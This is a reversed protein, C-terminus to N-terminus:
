SAGLLQDLSDKCIILKRSGGNLLGKQRFHKITQCVTAVSTNAFSAIIRYTLVAPLLVDGNTLKSGCEKAFYVLINKIREAIKGELCLQQLAKQLFYKKLLSHHVTRIFHTHTNKLHDFKQIPIALITLNQCAHVVGFSTQKEPLELDSPFYMGKKLFTFTSQGNACFDELFLSGQELWFIYSQYPVYTLEFKSGSEFKLIKTYEELIKKESLDFEQLGELIDSAENELLSNTTTKMETRYDCTM